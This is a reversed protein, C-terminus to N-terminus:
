QLVYNCIIMIMFVLYKINIFYLSLSKQIQLAGILSRTCLVTMRNVFIYHMMHIVFLHSDEIVMSM